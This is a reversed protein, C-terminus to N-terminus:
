SLQAKLHHWRLEVVVERRGEGERGRERGGERGRERERELHIAHSYVHTHAHLVLNGEVLVRLPVHLGSGGTLVEAYLLGKKFTTLPFFDM